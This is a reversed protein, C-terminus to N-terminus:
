RGFLRAFFGPAKTVSKYISQARMGTRCFALVPGASQELAAKFQAQDDPTFRGPKFPIHHYTMGARKATKAIAKSLPQAADEGDPRNSIITKYGADALKKIDDFAIQPSVSFGVTIKTIQM